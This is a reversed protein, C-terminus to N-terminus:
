FRPSAGEGENAESVYGIRRIPTRVDVVADSPRRREGRARPSTFICDRERSATRTRTKAVFPV